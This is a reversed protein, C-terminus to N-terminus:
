NYFFIIYFREQTTPNKSRHGSLMEVGMFFEDWSINDKRKNSGM